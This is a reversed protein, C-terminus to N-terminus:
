LNMFQRAVTKYTREADSVNIYTTNGKRKDLNNKKPITNIDILNIEPISIKTMIMLFKSFILIYVNALLLIGM